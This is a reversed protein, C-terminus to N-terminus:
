NKMLKFHAFLCFIIALTLLLVMGLDPISIAWLLCLLAVLATWLLDRKM